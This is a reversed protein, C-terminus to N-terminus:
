SIGRTPVHTAVLKYWGVVLSIIDEDEMNTLIANLGPREHMDDWIGLVVYAADDGAEAADELAGMIEDVERVGHLRDLLTRAQAETTM